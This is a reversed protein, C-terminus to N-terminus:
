GEVFVEFIQCCAVILSVAYYVVRLEVSLEYEVLLVRVYEETSLEDVRLAGFVRHTNSCSEIHLYCKPVQLLTLGVFLHIQVLNQRLIGVAVTRGM